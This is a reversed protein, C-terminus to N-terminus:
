RDAPRPTATAPRQTTVPRSPLVRRAHRAVRRAAPRLATVGVALGGVSLLIVVIDWLPRKDYLVPFDLSHLGQYLWRRTRTIRDHALAVGGTSPDLYLWTAAENAYRVRLVPLPRQGRADYYYGDFSNLWERSTAPVHPLARAAVRLLTSEPFERFPAGTATADIFRHDLVPKSVRPGLGAEVWAGAEDASPADWARWYWAGDVDTLELEKLSLQSALATAATRVDTASLSELSPPALVAQRRVTGLDRSSLFNWPGMSLLGSFTWTFVIVGFALGTYHHWRLSGAYPSASPQRRIRFRRRPSLRMLGWALGTACAALGAISSWIVVDTWLPGNRRLPTFYLWHVVPGLYAWFRERRTTRLVVDGSAESVYIHTSASDGLTFRYAPLQARAQLTWQDPEVIRTVSQPRAADHAFTQAARWARESDVAPMPEGTDAFVYTVGARAGAGSLRYAPRGDVMVISLRGSQVDAVRRADAPSVRLTSLDLPTLRALREEPALVPMRAYMMVMGSAFWALFLLCGAIGLWRHVYVLGAKWSVLRQAM